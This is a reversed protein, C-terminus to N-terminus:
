AVASERSAPKPLEIAHALKKWIKAPKGNAIADMERWFIRRLLVIGADSKGLRENVRDAIPGQGM